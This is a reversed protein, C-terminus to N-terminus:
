AGIDTAPVIRDLRNIRDPAAFHPEGDGTPIAPFFQHDRIFLL